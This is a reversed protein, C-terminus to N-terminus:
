TAYTCADYACHHTIDYAIMTLQPSTIVLRRAVSGPSFIGGELWMTGFQRPLRATICILAIWRHSHPGIESLIRENM